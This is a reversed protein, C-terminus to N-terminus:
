KEPVVPRCSLGKVDHQKGSQRHRLLCRDGEMWLEFHDPTALSRGLLPQEIIVAGAKYFADDALTVPTGNLMQSIHGNLPHVANEKPTGALQAPVLGSSGTTAQCSMLTLLMLGIGARRIGTLSNM